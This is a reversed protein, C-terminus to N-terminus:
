KGMFCRNKKKKEWMKEIGLRLLRVAVVEPGTFDAEAALALHLHGFNEM